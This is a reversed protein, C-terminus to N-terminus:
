SANEGYRATELIDKLEAFLRREHNAAAEPSDMVMDLQRTHIIIHGLIVMGQLIQEAPANEMRAFVADDKSTALFGKRALIGRIMEARMVRRQPDAGGGKFQLYAYNEDDFPGAHGEITSYHFGYRSQLNCYDRSIMFYNRGGMENAVGPALEPNSTAQMVVSLFGRASPAPPGEWPKANMGHWLARMPTSCIEDMSVTKGNRVNTGGGMDLVWYQTPIDTVLRRAAGVPINGPRNFMENVGMEHCFRTIDHLTTCNQPAFEPSSSCTLNLPIILDMASRLCLMVPSKEMLPPPGPCAELMNSHVGRFVACATADVTIEDMKELIQVANKMGFIAPIRFERAVNALHGATSGHGAVIASVQDLASAWAPHAQETILIAGEPMSLLDAESNVVHAPGAAAGPSATVGGQIIAGERTNMDGTRGNTRIDLPRCQLLIIGNNNRAWEVDQACGFFEELRRGMRVLEYITGDDLAPKTQQQEPLPTDELGETNSCHRATLKKEVQRRVIEMRGTDIDWTDPNCTGDVITVPLGPVAHIRACNEYEGVPDKTYLVGGSDADVMEMCAVCMVTEDDRLGRNRRYSMATVSFASAVVDRYADAIGEPSVNLVSHYQGAFSVGPMDEDLASSRVAYAASDTCGSLSRALQEEMGRTLPTARIATAIRSSLTYLGALDDAQAAICLREIEQRLGSGMFAHFADATFVFGHPIPLGLTQGASALTATKSGALDSRGDVDSLPLILPGDTALDKKHHIVADLQQAIIRLRSKLEEYRGPSMACLAQVMRGVSAVTSVCGSRVYNMDLSRLGGLADGMDSMSELAAHNAALLLRFNECKDLFEIMRKADKGAASARRRSIMKRVAELIPM